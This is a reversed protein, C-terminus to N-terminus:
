QNYKEILSNAYMLAVDTAKDPLPLEHRSLLAAMFRAALELRIPMGAYEDRPEKIWNGDIMHMQPFAGHNPDIKRKPEPGCKSM